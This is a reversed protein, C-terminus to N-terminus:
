QLTIVIDRMTADDAARAFRQLGAYESPQVRGAPIDILRELILTGGEQRDKVIVRRDGDKVEVPALGRVVAGRPLKLALKISAYTPDGLLLPTQRRPLSTLQSIRIAFPPTLVLTGGRRRAFDTVEINMRMAIPQDLDAQNEIDVKVLHAGPIAQALLKGEIVKPLQAAPLQELGARLSIGAKGVFKQALELTAGGEASVDGSGEYVVGDFSGRASTTEQPTGPILRYAPQRRLGAPVYGFPAFKDRVTLWEPDKGGLRLVFGDWAEAESIPGAPAPHLKDKAVAVEIPIGLTRCLYVFASTRNGSKGVVVRRGDGERGEEVNALVWRYLKRARDIEGEGAPAIQQAIRVIRPDRPLEDTVADVLRDLQDTLSIGWGIRVSPLFEQIPASGPEVPAAPSQDVRWRRIALPGDETLKPAPVDGHREIALRKNKPAIVVFESRWYAVDAERFFWHPGLYRYGLQGDGAHNAINETEIYDGVELHPMTVTPKNAVFEPELITGDKKIVRLQLILGEPVKQEAMKGIAEQSQIRILEHELMRSSGDPHIWVASYDLVRAATGEMEKGSAEYEAIVKRGDLRYPELETMGEVLELASTLESIDGGALIADSLAHRLAQPDGAAFRADALGLRAASDQPKKALARELRAVPDSPSGARAMVDALRDTIDKRDPRRQGLRKLEERAAAWDRRALARDVAIETDPNLAKIRAAVKEAEVHEGEEDLVDLLQKLVRQNQPFRKAADRLAVSREAKWGLRGYLRALGELAEPIERFHESLKRVEVAADALGKKEAQDVALWFRPWWMEPDKAAARTRLDRALDHRDSEPFIPDGEAFTAAMSLPVAAARGLDGVLPEFVMAAVDDQGEVHALFGLLYRSLDDPVDRIAGDRVVQDLENPYGIVEPPRLGYAPRPDDSSAVALPTGDPMLLRMATETSGVRALIRHRGKPLRLRVGFKTWVGWVRTDRELVVVDDVSVRYAGQVALLVERDAPLDVFSEVYFVAEPLMETSRMHCGNQETRLVHPAMHIGRDPQWRQPWPGPLEADFVRRRDGSAGHGFPGALRLGKLCGHKEAALEALNRRASARAEDTWWEVLEGRARWGIHGPHAITEEIAGGVKEWLGKTNPAFTLVHNTAFWAVIPARPDTSSRAAKIAEVYEYAATSTRGHAGDDLAMALSALMGGHPVSELRKRANKAQEAQGGPSILERLLWEGVVEGDNSRQGTARAAEVNPSQAIPRAGGCSMSLALGVALALGAAGAKSRPRASVAGTKSRPRASV